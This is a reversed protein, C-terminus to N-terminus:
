SKALNKLQPPGSFARISFFVSIKTTKKQRCGGLPEELTYFISTRARLTICVFSPFGRIGWLNQFLNATRAKKNFQLRITNRQNCYNQYFRSNEIIARM